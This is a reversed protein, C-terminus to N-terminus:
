RPEATQAVPFGLGHVRCFSVSGFRPVGTGIFGGSKGYERVLEKLETVVPPDRCIACVYM